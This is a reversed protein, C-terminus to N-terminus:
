EKSSIVEGKISLITSYTTANSFVTATKQFVGVNQARYTIKIIGKQGPEIPSKPYDAVTCGCSPQVRSILLPVKGTNQLEFNADKSQNLEVKGMQAITDSLWKIVASDNSKKNETIIGNTFLLIVASILFIGKFFTQSHNFIKKTNVAFGKSFQTHSTQAKKPSCSHHSLFTQNM